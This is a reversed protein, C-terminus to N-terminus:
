NRLVKENIGNRIQRNEIIDEVDVMASSVPKFYVGTDDDKFNYEHIRAPGTQNLTIASKSYPM